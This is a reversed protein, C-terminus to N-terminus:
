AIKEIIVNMNSFTIANENVFSLTAFDNSGCTRKVTSVANFSLNAIGSASLSSSAIAGPVVVGNEQLQVTAVTESSSTVIFNASIRYLGPQKILIQGNQYELCNSSVTNDSFTLNSGAGIAADTSTIFRGLIKNM